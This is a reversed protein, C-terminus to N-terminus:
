DVYNLFNVVALVALIGWSVAGRRTVGRTDEEPVPPQAVAESPRVSPEHRRVGREVLCAAAPPRPLRGRDPRPADCTTDTRENAERRNPGDIRVFIKRPKAATM